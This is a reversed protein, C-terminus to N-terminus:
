ARYLGFFWISGSGDLARGLSTETGDADDLTGLTGSQGVEDKATVGSVTCGAKVGQTVIPIWLPGDVSADVVRDVCGPCLDTDAAAPSIVVSKGLGYTTASVDIAVLNGDALDVTTSAYHFM